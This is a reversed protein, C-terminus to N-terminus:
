PLVKGLTRIASELEAVRERAADLWGRYQDADIRAADRGQRMDEREKGAVRLRDTLSNNEAAMRRAADIASEERNAFLELRIDAYESRDEAREEVLRKVTEILSVGDRIELIDRVTQDLGWAASLDARAGERERCIRSVAEALTEGDLPGVAALVADREDELSVIRERLAADIASAPITITITEPMPPEESGSGLRLRAGTAVFAVSRPPCRTTSARITSAVRWSAVRRAAGAATSPAPSGDRAHLAHRPPLQYAVLKERVGEAVRSPEITALWMPVSDLHLCWTEQEIGRADPTCIMQVRAWPKQRLKAVQDHEMVGLNACAAPLSIWVGDERQVCEIEDGHFPVRVLATV